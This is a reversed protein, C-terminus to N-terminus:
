GGLDGLNQNRKIHYLCALWPCVHASWTTQFFVQRTGNHLNFKHEKDEGKVLESAMVAEVEMGRRGKARVNSFITHATTEGKQVEISTSFDGGL